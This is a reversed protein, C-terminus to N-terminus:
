VSSSRSTSCRRGLIASLVIALPLFPIVLFWETFRFLIRATWGEIFGAALGLLTGIVMSIATALLGSSCRSGPAGSSCRSCRDASTTPAWPTTRAVAAGARWRDGQHGRDRRTARAPARLDGRPRLLRPHGPGALGSRHRRFERWTRRWSAARRRRTLQKATLPRAPRGADDGARNGPPADSMDAGAPDLLGYVLNAILNAFIVAASAVLFTGQLVSYDPIDLAETSLLGLGPISFVTEITIAGSVRRVRHQDRHAHDVAAAREASRSSATRRRRPPGQRARHRPLGRRDRRAAVVAHDALLGRPLGPDAHHDAAHPAVGHRARVALTGPEVDVSHLGGTPFLGPIPGAGVAFVAILM